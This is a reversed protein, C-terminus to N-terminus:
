KRRVMAGLLLGVGFAVVSTALPTNERSGTIDEVKDGWAEAIRDKADALMEAIRGPDAKESIKENIEDLIVEIKETTLGRTSGKRNLSRKISSVEKTLDDLRTLLEQMETEATKEAM